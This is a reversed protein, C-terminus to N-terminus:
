VGDQADLQATPNQMREISYFTVSTELTYIYTTPSDDIEEDGGPVVVEPENEGPEEPVEPVEPEPAPPATTNPPTYGDPYQGISNNNLLARLARIGEGEKYISDADMLIDYFTVMRPYEMEIGNLMLAKRTGDIKYNNVEDAFKLLEENSLASVAFTVNSAGITQPASLASQVAAMRAALATEEETPEVGQTAYSKLAYTVSSETFFTSSLVATTPNEVQLEQVVINSKCQALFDRFADDAEYSALEPFFMDALHEGDEYAALIDARLGPKKKQKEELDNLEKEKSELTGMTTQITEIQPKILLFAGLALIVVALIILLGIREQKSLRM